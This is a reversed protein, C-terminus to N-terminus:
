RQLVAYLCDAPLKVVMAGGESRADIKKTPYGNVDLLVAKKLGDNKLVVTVDTNAVQWPMKGTNVIKEGRYTTKGDEGRQTTPKSTWGTPRMITGVQVLVKDSEGLPKDDLAVLTVTVYENGSRIVSDTLKVVGGADAFFGTAGQAKPTDLTCLGVGYNLKLEGTVSSVTQKAPEIYKALDISTTKAPDGGYKVEVRGVLFALPNIATKGYAGEAFKTDRGPDFTRGEAIVPTKRDWLDDLPREEHVVAPGRRIYGKRYMLAAAPFQTQTGPHLSWKFVGRQGDPFTQYPFFPDLCYGPTDASFWYFPGVGTLSEYATILFPGESEYALPYVWCSETIM